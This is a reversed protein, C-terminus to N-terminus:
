LIHVNEPGLRCLIFIVNGNDVQRRGERWRARVFHDTSPHTPQSAPQNVPQSVSLTASRLSPTTSQSVSRCVSQHVSQSAPQSISQIRNAQLKKINKNEPIPPNASRCPMLSVGRTDLTCPKPYNMTIKMNTPVM